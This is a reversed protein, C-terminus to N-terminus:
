LPPPIFGDCTSDIIAVAEQFFPEYSPACVSGAVGHDGFSDVFARLRPSPEAADKTCVPNVLDGDGFLGLVVLASEDGKKAAVLSAKWGEVTGASGDGADDDEDTVYTVVLIADSRLFGLNCDASAGKPAVASVMAQMVREPDDTSGTGVKAACSFAATLDPESVDMYRGGSTFACNKGSSAQGKPHVVGAGLIDECMEPKTVGCTYDALAPLCVNVLSCMLPCQSFVYADSDVVMIHYDQAAKLEKQITAIFGPFSKILSAQEESMSGSNDIVFLFDVKRCGEMPEGTGGTSENLGVDLKLEGSTSAESTTGTAGSSGGVSDTGAAAGSSVDASASSTTPTAETGTGTVNTASTVLTASGSASAGGGNGDDACASAAVALLLALSADLPRLYTLAM